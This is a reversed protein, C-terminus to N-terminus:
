RCKSSLREFFENLVTILHSSADVYPLVHGKDKIVAISQNAKSDSSSLKKGLDYAASVPVLTDHEGFAYLSPCAIQSSLINLNNMERLYDLGIRLGKNNSLCNKLYGLQQKSDSDGKVQLLAFRTLAKQANTVFLDYFGTFTELQMANPWNNSAVFSANSALGILAAAKEPYVAALRTALMGGLSWGLLINKDPLINAIAKCCDDSNKDSYEIDLVILEAHANLFPILSEWIRGDCGWGHLLVIPCNFLASSPRVLLSDSQDARAAFPIFTSKIM